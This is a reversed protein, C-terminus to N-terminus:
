VLSSQYLILLFLFFNIYTGLFQGVTVFQGWSVNIKVNRMKVNMETSQLTLDGSGENGVARSGCVQALLETTLKGRGQVRKRDPLM